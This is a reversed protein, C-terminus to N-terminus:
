GLAKQSLEEFAQATIARGTEILVDMELELDGSGSPAEVVVQEPGFYLGVRDLGAQQRLDGHRGPMLKAPIEKGNRKWVAKRIWAIGPLPYLHVSVKQGVPAKTKARLTQWGRTPRYPNSECVGEGWSLEFDSEAYVPRAFYSRWEAWEAWIRDAEDDFDGAVFRAPNAEAKLCLEYTAKIAAPHADLQGLIAAGHTVEPHVSGVANAWEEASPHLGLGNVAPALAEKPDGLIRSFVVVSRSLGRSERLASLTNLLWEGLTHPQPTGHWRVTSSAVDLPNRVVIVVSPTVNARSFCERFFPLIASAQPDKWGWLPRDAFLENWLALTEAILEETMPRERWEAPIPDIDFTSQSFSLRIKRNLADIKKHEGGGGEDTARGVYLDGAEGFYVGLRGLAGAVSSTGSRSNGVIVVAKGLLSM